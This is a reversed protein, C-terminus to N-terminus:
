ECQQEDNKLRIQKWSVSFNNVADKIQKQRPTLKGNGTKVEIITIGSVNNDSLGEFVIYDIPDGLFRCDRPNFNFDDSFPVFIEAILGRTTAKSSSIAKKRAEKESASAEEIFKEIEKQHRAVLGHIMTQYHEDCKAREDNRTQTTVTNVRNNAITLQAKLERIARNTYLVYYMLLGIIFISLIYIIM